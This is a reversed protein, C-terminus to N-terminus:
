PVLLEAVRGPASLEPREGVGLLSRVDADAFREALDQPESATSSLSWLVVVPVSVEGLRAAAVSARGTARRARVSEATGPVSVSRVFGETVEEDNCWEGSECEAFFRQHAQDSAGHRTYSIARGVGFPLGELTNWGNAPFPVDETNVLALATLAEPQTVALEAAVAGGWGFGAVLGPSSEVEGILGALVETQGTVTYVRGPDSPRSSLGFGVLDPVLVRFDRSALERALRTLTAGGVVTDDHVLVVTEGDVPGYTRLHLSVGGVDVHSGPPNILPNSREALPIQNNTTAVWVVGGFLALLVVLGMM